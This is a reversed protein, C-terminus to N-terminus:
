RGRTQPCVRVFSLRMHMTDHCEAADHTVAAGAHILLLTYTIHQAIHPPADTHTGRAHTSSWGCPAACAPLPYIHKCATSLAYLLACRMRGNTDFVEDKVGWQNCYVALWGLVRAPPVCTYLM